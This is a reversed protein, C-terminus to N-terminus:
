LNRCSQPVLGGMIFVLVSSVHTMITLVITIPAILDASTDAALGGTTQGTKKTSSVPLSRRSCLKFHILELKNPHSPRGPIAPFWDHLADARHYEGRVHPGDGGVEATSVEVHRQYLTDLFEKKKRGPPLRFKALCLTFVEVHGGPTATLTPPAEEEGVLADVTLKPNVGEACVNQRNLCDPKDSPTPM